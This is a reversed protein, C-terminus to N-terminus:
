FLELFDSFSAPVLKTKNDGHLFKIPHNMFVYKWLGILIRYNREHPSILFHKVYSRFIKVNEVILWRCASDRM